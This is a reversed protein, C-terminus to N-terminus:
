TEKDNKCSNWSSALMWNRETPHYMFEKLNLNIGLTQITTGCDNTIWSVGDSGMFVIENSDVPSAIM